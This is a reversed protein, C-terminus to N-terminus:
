KFVWVIWHNRNENIKRGAFSYWYEIQRYLISTLALIPFLHPEPFTTPFSGEHIQTVSPPFLLSLLLDKIPQKMVQLVYTRLLREYIGTKHMWSKHPKQNILHELETQLLAINRLKEWVKSKNNQSCHYIWKRRLRRVVRTSHLRDKLNTTPLSITCKQFHRSSCQLSTAFELM